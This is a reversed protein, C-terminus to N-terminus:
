IMRMNFKRAGGQTAAAAPGDVKRFSYEVSLNSKRQGRGRSWVFLLLFCFLVVGLFTICGMATSVLVTTLDLPFREAAQTENRGEGPTRNAAPEARVTLTSSTPTTGGAMSTVCTYPASTWPTATGGSADGAHKVSHFTCELAHFLLNNSLNILRIQRLGLFAQPEVVALLAGALHLERLRVLDRFSGRPVRSIPNYSLNLCTLHAQHSLAAAPVATINTHTVSLSTLNLGQLSGAAVEELLPWNDIELHLLGPLKRFNQDELAAIALHRLRLTGLGRLHGLSEGSLATLNCRELTLEELALLGAFARRSIFVLDNDGVELRQLSRLDQFAYDLLIVLKNESLDLLTLNGLRTFVGPPILKLQNGRLRLVQLRPLNDFAGPEVHAIVNDSLDLEELQPLAALDGPNLCRIRNRSLELLRTEAPIGDPVATLRRRPCAVTRTQATCECRAPCGRALPPAVPLLLLHLSLVHLWCTMTRLRPRPGCWWGGPCRHTLPQTLDSDWGLGM